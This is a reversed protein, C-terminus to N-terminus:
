ICSAANFYRYSFSGFLMGQRARNSCCPHRMLMLLSVFSTMLVAVLLCRKNSM